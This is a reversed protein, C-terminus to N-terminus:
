NKLLNINNNHWYQKLRLKLTQEGKSTKLYNERRKADDKNLRAEYYICNWPGRIKTSFNLGKELNITYGIYLNDDKLNKLM